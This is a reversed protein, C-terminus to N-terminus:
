KPFAQEAEFEELLKRLRSKVEFDTANRHARHLYVFAPRGMAALRRQAERREEANESELKKIHAAAREALDPECHPQHVLMVRVTKEPRPNTTLPLMRDYEAQPLRYFVGLGETEFFDKRWVATLGKAEDENLGAAKLQGVLTEIADDPWKTQEGEKFEVDKAEAEADLQAVRAIRIKHVNRLDVVTVDHLAHKAKSKLSVRDKDVSVAIGKPTPILGDYYIFRERQQGSQDDYTIVDDAKVDRLASMWHGRPLEQPKIGDLNTPKVQLQWELTSTQTMGRGDDFGRRGIGGGTTAPWWVAPKGGPFDVKLYLSTPQKAHVYIVPAKAVAIRQPVKRGDVQGYVFTPLRGWEARMDANALEVDDYVTTVGWEHLQLGAQAPPLPPQQASSIYTLGAGAGAMALAGLLFERRKM